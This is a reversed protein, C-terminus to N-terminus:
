DMLQIFSTVNPPLFMAKIQGKKLESEALHSPANDIVLIVHVLLNKSKLHEEVAPVFEDPCWNKFLNSDMWASKQNHYYVPLSSLNFNKFARPKKFKGIVFLPLKHSGNTNSCTAITM